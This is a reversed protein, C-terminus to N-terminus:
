AGILDLMQEVSQRGFHVSEESGGEGKSVVICPVSMVQYKDKLDNFHAIDYAEARVNPSLAAIHQASQVTAPCMTCSLSVLITISVPTSIASIRQRTAPELAQGPGSANYLGLVFSNFEHGGPVGHFALGTDAGEKFIRTAPLHVGSQGDQESTHYNVLVSLKSTMNALERMYSELEASIPREDLSLRLELASEMREFVTALQEQMEANFVGEDAAKSGGAAQSPADPRTIELGYAERKERAYGELATAAIAGDATATVLQRLRKERVDGAAYLGAVSTQCDKDAVVYGQGNLEAITEVLSTEPTYGAFVFIGFAEGDAARYEQAEGTSLNKFSAGRLATDGSVSELVTHTWVEINAHQQVKAAISEPCSFGAGRIVVTVKRAISALFM